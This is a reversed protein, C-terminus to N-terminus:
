IFFKSTHAANIDQSMQDFQEDMEQEVAEEVDMPALDQVHSVHLHVGHRSVVVDKPQLPAAKCNRPIGRSATPEPTLGLMTKLRQRKKVLEFYLDDDLLWGDISQIDSLRTRLQQEQLWPQLPNPETAIDSRDLRTARLTRHSLERGRRVTEIELLEKDNKTLHVDHMPVVELKVSSIVRDVVTTTRKVEVDTPFDELTLVHDGNGDAEMVEFQHILCDIIKPDVERLERLMFVVYEMKAALVCTLQNISCFEESVVLCGSVLRAMAMRM